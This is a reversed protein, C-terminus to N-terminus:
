SNPEIVCSASEPDVRVLLPTTEGGRIDVQESCSIVVHADVNAEASCGGLQCDHQFASIEYEGPPVSKNLMVAEKVGAWEPTAEVVVDDGERLVIETTSGEIGYPHPPDFVQSVALDGNEEGSGCGALVAAAALGAVLQL